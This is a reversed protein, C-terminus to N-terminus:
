EPFGGRVQLDSLDQGRRRQGEEEMEWEVERRDVTLVYPVCM